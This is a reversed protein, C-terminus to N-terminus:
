EAVENLKIPRNLNNNIYLKANYIIENTEVKKPDSFLINNLEVTRLYFNQIIIKILTHALDEIIPQTFITQQNCQSLIEKWLVGVNFRKHVMLYGKEDIHNFVNILEKTDSLSYPEIAISLISLDSKNELHYEAYPKIIFLDGNVIPYNRNDYTFI